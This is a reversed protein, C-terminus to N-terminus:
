AFMGAVAMDYLFPDSLDERRTVRGFWVALIESMSVVAVEVLVPAAGGAGGPGTQINLNLYNMAPLFFPWPDQSTDAFAAGQVTAYSAQGDRDVTLTANPATPFTIGTLVPFRGVTASQFVAKYQAFGALSSAASPAYFDPPQQYIRGGYFGQLIKEASMPLFGAAVNAALRDLGTQTVNGKADVMGLNQLAQQEQPTLQYWHDAGGSLGDRQALVKEAATLRRMTVALNTQWPSQAVGTSNVLSMQLTDVAAIRTRTQRLGGRAASTYGPAQGFGGVQDNPDVAYTITVQSNQSTQIMDVSAMYTPKSRDNWGQANVLPTTGTSLSSSGGTGDFPWGTYTLTEIPSRVLQARSTDFLAKAM